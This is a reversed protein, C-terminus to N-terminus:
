LLIDMRIRDPKRNPRFMDLINQLIQFPSKLSDLLNLNFPISM